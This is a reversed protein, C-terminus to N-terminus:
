AAEAFKALGATEYDSRRGVARAALGFALAAVLAFGASFGFVPAQLWAGAGLVLGGVAAFLLALGAFLDVLRESDSRLRQVEFSLVKFDRPPPTKSM